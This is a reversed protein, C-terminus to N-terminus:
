QIWGLRKALATGPEFHMGDKRVYGDSPWGWGGWWWGLQAAIIAHPVLSGVKGESAPVSGLMNWRANLDVAVGKAHNSLTTRSGRVLRQVFLGDFSLLEFTLSAADWAQFLAPLAEQVCKHVQLKGTKPFTKKFAGATLHLRALTPFDAWVINDRNWNNLVQINEPYGPLPAYKWELHGFAQAREAETLPRLLAPDPRPPLNSPEGSSYQSTVVNRTAEDVVGTQPIRSRKQFAKTAQETVPGFLQDVHGFYLGLGRLFLQWQGVEAGKSGNKLEM